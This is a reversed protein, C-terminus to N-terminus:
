CILIQTYFNTGEKITNKIEDDHDSSFGTRASYLEMNGSYM